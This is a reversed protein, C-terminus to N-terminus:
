KLITQRPPSSVFSIEAELVAKDVLEIEAATTTDPIEKNNYYLTIRSFDIGHRQSFEHKIDDVSTSPLIKFKLDKSNCYRLSIHFPENSM